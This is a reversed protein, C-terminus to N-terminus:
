YPCEYLFRVVAPQPAAQFTLVTGSVTHSPLSPGSLVQVTVDPTGDNNKDIPVCKLQIKRVSNAIQNGIDDLIMSYDNSKIQGEIGGTAIRLAHQAGIICPENYSCVNDSAPDNITQFYFKKFPWHKEILGLLYAGKNRITTGGEAEETISIVHLNSHSRVFAKNNENKADSLLARELARVSSKISQEAWHGKEGLLLSQALSADLNLTDPSYWYKTGDQHNPLLLGDQVKQKFLLDKDVPDPSNTDTYNMDSVCTNAYINQNQGNCLSGTTTFALRYDLGTLHGTLHSIATGLAQHEPTMSETNAVVFLIETQNIPQEQIVPQGQNVVNFSFHRETQNSASDTMRIKFTHAGVTLGSYIKTDQSLCPQYAGDLACEVSTLTVNNGVAIYAFVVDLLNGIVSGPNASFLVEPGSTIPALANQIWSVILPDSKNGAKDYAEIV